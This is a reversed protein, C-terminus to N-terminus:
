NKLDMYRSLIAKLKGEAKLDAIAQNIKDMKRTLPSQRGAVTFWAVATTENGSLAAAAESEFRARAARDGAVSVVAINQFPTAIDAAPMTPIISSRGTSSGCAAALTAVAILLPLTLRSAVLM